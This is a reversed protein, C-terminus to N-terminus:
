RNITALSSTNGSSKIGDAIVMDFGIPGKANLVIASLSVFFHYLFITMTKVPKYINM